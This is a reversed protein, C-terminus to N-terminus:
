IARGVRKEAKAENASVKWEEGGVQGVLCNLIASHIVTFYLCRRERERKRDRERERKRERERERERERM